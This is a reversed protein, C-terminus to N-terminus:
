QDLADASQRAAQDLADKSNAAGQLVKAIAEGVYKSLETYGPVTPRPQKANALNAFFPVAGPSYTKAWTDFAPTSQESSRLPLNGYALNWRADVDRSTLWLLFATTAAARNADKHDYAVWLDPGSITEHDGNFSPLQTVGYNVKRDKLDYLDWPGAVIMAIRGDFFLPEYKADTQDLYMSKDDVAMSRLFDLAQVGADSNFAASKGDDSLIKGGKQWLLPWLHWTTDESGSVSWGTGFIKDGPNTLKKAAARFDDWTWDNTPYALGAADFLTKNYILGLNDVLAPVGIVKSDVTATATAAPPFESWAVEPKAVAATLDLTHGSQGLDTAWSGYAYSIDPYTDSVFGAAVKQKLDDTTAAGPSVTITVNPHAKTYEKALSDLVKEAQATQGTWWTLAVPATPDATQTQGSTSGTAGTSSGTCAALGLTLAITAAAAPTTRRLSRLRRTTM